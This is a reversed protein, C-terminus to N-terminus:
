PRTIRADAAPHILCADGYSYFRYRQAIAHRYADKMRDLGALASVMMFLTSRPLHFNTLLLDVARFRYGPAIFIATDGEFPHLVGQADAATELLRAVTTGIAVVRGGRARRRNILAATFGDIQGYEAHMKHGALTESKVPLFTGAGVHLTITAREVGKALIRRLLPETFHFGATPAAVAGPRDAFMTQYDQRDQDDPGQTRAIYPPLPMTGIGELAELLQSERLAFSLIVEGGEGREEVDAALGHSFTIINGARLKRAGRAFAHWRGQGLARHLTIEVKAEGRLGYLRAPIVRTDNVVLIDGPALCDPLDAIRRDVMSAPTIELLRASERDALPRDAILEKPLTFDFADVNMDPDNM